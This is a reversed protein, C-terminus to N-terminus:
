VYSVITSKLTSELVEGAELKVGRDVKIRWVHKEQMDAINQKGFNISYQILLFEFPHRQARYWFSDYPMLYQINNNKQGTIWTWKTTIDMM